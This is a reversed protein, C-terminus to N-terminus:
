EGSPVPERRQRAERVGAWVAAYGVVLNLMVSVMLLPGLVDGHGCGSSSTECHEPPISAVSAVALAVSVLVSGCLVLTLTRRTLM